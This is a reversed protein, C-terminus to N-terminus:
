LNCTNHPALRLNTACKCRSGTETTRLPNTGLLNPNKAADGAKYLVAVIKLKEDHTATAFAKAGGRVIHPKDNCNALGPMSFAQSCIIRRGAFASRLLSPSTTTLAFPNATAMTSSLSGGRRLCQQFVTMTLMRLPMTVIIPSYLTPWQSVRDTLEYSAHTM